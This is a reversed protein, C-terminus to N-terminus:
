RRRAERRNETATQAFRRRILAVIEEDNMTSLTLLPGIGRGQKHQWSVIVYHTAAPRVISVSCGLSKAIKRLRVLEQAQDMHISAYLTRYAEIFADLARRQEETLTDEAVGFSACTRQRLLALRQMMASM